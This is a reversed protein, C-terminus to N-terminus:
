WHLVFTPINGDRGHPVWINLYLCDESGRTDTQILNLQLCRNRYKTAKLVGSFVCYMLLWRGLSSSTMDSILFGKLHIQPKWITYHNLGRAEQVFLCFFLLCFFCKWNHYEILHFTIVGVSHVSENLWINFNVYCTIYSTISLSGVTGGPTVSPSRLGGPFTLSPFERSSMWPEFCDWAFERERCWVGRQTCWGWSSTLPM